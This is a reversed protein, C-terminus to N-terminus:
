TSGWGMPRLWCRAPRRPSQWPSGWTTARPWPHPPHLEVKGLKALSDKDPNTPASLWPDILIVGGSPTEVRFAVHGYFHMKTEAQAAIATLAVLATALLAARLWFTTRQLM